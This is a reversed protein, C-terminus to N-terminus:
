LYTAIFCQEEIEYNLGGKLNSWMKPVFPQGLQPTESYRYTYDMEIIKYLLM